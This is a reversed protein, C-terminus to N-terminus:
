RWPRTVHWSCRARALRLDGSLSSRATRTRPLTGGTMAGIQELMAEDLQTHVSSARSRSRRHRGTSGIGVTHIASAGTRPRRRRRSPTPTSRTRATPSCCSSRRRRPQRAGGAAPTRRRSGAIPQHLLGRERPGGRDRYRTWPPASAAARAVHGAAADLRGIAALVAAQDNTPVQVSLGSDSFAVVGIVVSPPQREVFASRPPRPRTWARTPAAIDDAAMSGSVDFALVVTGEERPCRRRGGATPRAGRRARRHRGARHGALRLAPTPAPASPRGHDVRAAAHGRGIWGDGAVGDSSAWTASRSCRCSGPAAAADLAVPLDGDAVRRRKAGRTAMRVIARVLDDTPPCTASAEVGAGGSRPRSTSRGSAPRRRSGSASRRSRPHRDVLQEGTEADEMCWPGWTRCRRGRAPRPRPRGAGRAPAGAAGAPAGLRTRQHLRLRHGGVLPAQHVAAGAELLPALDTFAARPLRPADLLASTLRLVQDRGTRPPIVLDVSSATCCRARGPQWPADPTPRPDDGPRHRGGAEGPRREVTGFDLSPSLDVLFWCDIERDEHYVRVYPADM